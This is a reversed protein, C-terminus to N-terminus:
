EEDEDGEDEDGTGATVEVDPAGNDAEQAAAGLPLPTTGAEAAAAEAAAEPAQLQAHIEEIGKWEAEEPGPALSAVDFQADGARVTLFRLVSDSIKLRRELEDVLGQPGAFRLCYYIGLDKGSIRYALRRLGWLDVKLLKGEGNAIAERITDALKGAGAPTTAPSLIYALEYQRVRKTALEHM